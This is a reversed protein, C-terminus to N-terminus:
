HRFHRTQTFIMAMGRENAAAIVEDDKKSGGPQIITSIGYAHAVQISDAFPFFGDSALAAGKAADGAQELALRVSQVRNPQGTGMGLMRDKTGVVIANSCVHKVIQWQLLAAWYEEETAERETTSLFCVEDDAANPDPEQVVVGGTISQITETQRPPAARLLRVNQVWGERQRFVEMARPTYECAVIVEFFNGKSTILEALDGTVVQVGIIGGFASIRDCELAALFSDRRDELQAVGCPNAHKVIVCADSRLDYLLGWAADADFLNNASLDKGWLKEANAIGGAKPDRLVQAKQHPNAGYRLEVGPEFDAIIETLNKL